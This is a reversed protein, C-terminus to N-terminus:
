MTTLRGMGRNRFDQMKAKRDCATVYLDFTGGFDFADAGTGYWLQNRPCGCSTRGADCGGFSGDGGWDFLKEANMLLDDNAFYPSLSTREKAALVAAKVEYTDSMTEIHILDAGAKEGYEMVEAFAEYADEFALDGMPKLLKGTPGIDLGVYIKEAMKSVM